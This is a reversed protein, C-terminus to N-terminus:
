RGRKLEIQHERAIVLVTKLSIRFVCQRVAERAGYQRLLDAVHERDKDSFTPPRGRRPSYATM